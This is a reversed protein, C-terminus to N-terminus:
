LVPLEIKCKEVVDELKDEWVLGYKKRNELQVIEKILEDKSWTSYDKKTM